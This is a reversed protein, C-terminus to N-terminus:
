ATVKWGLHRVGWGLFSYLNAHQECKVFANASTEISHADAM